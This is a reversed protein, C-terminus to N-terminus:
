SLFERWVMPDSNDLATNKLGHGNMNPELILSGKNRNIHSGHKQTPTINAGESVDGLSGVRVCRQVCVARGDQDLIVTMFPHTHTHTHTHQTKGRTADVDINWHSMEVGRLM